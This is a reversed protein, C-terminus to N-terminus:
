FLLKLAFQIERQDAGITTSSIVGFNSQGLTSGPNAFNAQNLLNFFEARFELSTREWMPFTKFVSLNLYRQPPGFLQNRGENGLTNPAQAVFAATNFWEANSQNPISASGVQNPRDSGININSIAGNPNLVTFPFGSSWSYIVNGGWGKIV